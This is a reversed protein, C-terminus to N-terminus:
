RLQRAVPKIHSATFAAIEAATLRKSEFLNKMEAVAGAFIDADGDEPTFYDVVHNLGVRDGNAQARLMNGLALFRGLKTSTWEDKGLVSGVDLSLTGQQQTPDHPADSDREQPAVGERDLRISIRADDGDDRYKGVKMLGSAKDDTDVVYGISAEVGQGPRGYELAPDYVADGRERIYAVVNSAILGGNPTTSILRYMSYGDAESVKVTRAQPNYRYHLTPLAKFTKNLTDLLHLPEDSELKIALGRGGSKLPLKEDTSNGHTAHHLIAYMADSLVRTQAQKAAEVYRQPFAEFWDNYPWSYQMQVLKDVSQLAVADGTNLVDVLAQRYGDKDELLRQCDGIVKWDGLRVDPTQPLRNISAMRDHISQLL